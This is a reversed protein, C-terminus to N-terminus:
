WASFLTDLFVNVFSLGARQFAVAALPKAELVRGCGTVYEFDYRATAVVGPTPRFAPGSEPCTYAAGVLFFSAM